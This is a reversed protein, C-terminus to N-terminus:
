QSRGQSRTTIYEILARLTRADLDATDLMRNNVFLTPTGDVMLREGQARDDRVRDFAETSGMCSEFASMDLGERMAHRRLSIIDHEVGAESDLYLAASLEDYKGQRASCLAARAALCSSVEKRHDMADRCQEGLPFNKYYVVLEGPREEMIRKLSKNMRACSSCNFDSFVVIRVPSGPAGDFLAGELDIRSELVAEYRAILRSVREDGGFRSMSEALSERALIGIGTGMVVLTLVVLGHPIFRTRVFSSLSRLAGALSERPKGRRFHRLAFLSVALIFVTAAYSATCLPCLANIFFVSVFLLLLDAFLALISLAAVLRLPDARDPTNPRMISAYLFAAYGYYVFGFLATPIDGLLPIGRIAALSSKAVTRCANVGSGTRCIADTLGISVDFYELILVASILAGALSALLGVVALITFKIKTREVNIM